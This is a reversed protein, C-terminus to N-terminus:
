QLFCWLSFVRGNAAKHARPMSAENLFERQRKLSNVAKKIRRALNCSCRILQSITTYSDYALTHIVYSARPRRVDLLAARLKHSNKLCDIIPHQKTATHAIDFHSLLMTYREAVQFFFSLTTTTEKNEPKTWTM